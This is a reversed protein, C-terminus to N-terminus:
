KPKRRSKRWARIYAMCHEDRGLLVDEALKYSPDARDITFIAQPPEGGPGHHRRRRRCGGGAARVDRELAEAGAVRLLRQEHRRHHPYRQRFAGALRPDCRLLSPRLHFRGLHPLGASRRLSRGARLGQRAGSGGHPVREGGARGRREAHRARRRRDGGRPLRAGARPRACGAAGALRLQADAAGQRACDGGARRPDRRRQLFRHLAPTRDPGAGDGRALGHRRDARQAQAVDRRRQPRSLGRGRAGSPPDAGRHLADGRRSRGGGDGDGDRDRRARAQGPGGRLGQDRKAEETVPLAAGRRGRERLPHGGGRRAGRHAQGQPAAVRTCHINEGIVILTPAGTM